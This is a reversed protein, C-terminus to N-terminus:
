VFGATLQANLVDPIENALWQRKCLIQVLSDPLSRQEILAIKVMDPSIVGLHLLRVVLPELGEHPPSVLKQGMVLGELETQSLLNQEQLVQGLPLDLDTQNEIAAVLDSYTIIGAAVCMHGIKPRLDEVSIQFSDGQQRLDNAHLKRLDVTHLNFYANRIPEMCYYAQQYALTNQGFNNPALKQNLYIFAADVATQTADLAVGLITFYNLM